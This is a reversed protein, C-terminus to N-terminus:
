QSATKTGNTIQFIQVRGNGTDTVFVRDASDIYIGQSQLFEGADTGYHGFHFLRVGNPSFVEVAGIDFLVYILGEADVAIGKASVASMGRPKFERKYHGDLDFVQIRENQTDLVFLEGGHLVLETPLRFESPGSGGGRKGIHTITRGDRDFIFVLHRTSDVLYIRGTDRDVAISTPRDFGAEGKFNGIYRKFKGEANYVLVMGRKLDTVYISDDPGVAVGFPYLLREDKNGDIRIYKRAYFDLIHVTRKEPETVVIRDRSDTTIRAGRIFSTANTEPMPPGAVIDLVRDCAAEREGVLDHGEGSHDFMDRLHQCPTRVLEVDSDSQFMKLLEVSKGTPTVAVTVSGSQALIAVPLVILATLVGLISRPIRLRLV